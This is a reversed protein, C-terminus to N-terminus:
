WGEPLPAHEHVDFVNMEGTMLGLQVINAVAHMFVGHKAVDRKFRNSLVKFLKFLRNVQEHRARAVDMYFYEEVNSADEPLLAEPCRYTDDAIYQEEPLLCLHLLHKAIALDPWIGCPYPGNVWVIWGFEIHIGIEYRVGPGNFKHGYWERSFPHPERIRFDTGDITINILRNGSGL